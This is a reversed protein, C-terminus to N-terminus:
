ELWSMFSRTSPNMTIHTSTRLLKVTPLSRKSGSGNIEFSHPGERANAIQAEAEQLRAAAEELHRPVTM